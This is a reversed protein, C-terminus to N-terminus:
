HQIFVLEKAHSRSPVFAYGGEQFAKLEEIAQIRNKVIFAAMMGRAKKSMLGINKFVGNRSQLFIIDVMPKRLTKQDIVQSYEKSALNVIVKGEVHNLVDTIKAQWFAYLGKNVIGKTAMELRYPQINDLPKLLGYLGSLIGMHTQAYVVDKHSFMEAKLGQYTDGAYAFMAPKSCHIKNSEFAQIHEYNAKALAPSIDMVKQIDEVTFAKLQQMLQTAELQFQPCTAVVSMPSATFNQKKAPSIVSYM